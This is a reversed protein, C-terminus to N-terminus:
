TTNYKEKTVNETLNICFKRKTLMLFPDHNPKFYTNQNGPDFVSITLSETFFVRNWCVFVFIAKWSLCYQNTKSCDGRTLHFLDLINGDSFIGARCANKKEGNKKRQQGEDGQRMREWRCHRTTLSVTFWRWETDGTTVSLDLLRPPWMSEWILIWGFGISSRGM